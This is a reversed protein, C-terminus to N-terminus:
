KKKVCMGPKAVLWINKTTDYIEVTELPTEAPGKGGVAYLLGNFIACSLHKRGANMHAVYTWRNAAPNYSEVSLLPSMSPDGNSGGVAFLRGRHAVLGHGLREMLMDAMKRWENKVADYRVVEKLCSAGMQGGAVYIYDDTVAAAASTRAGLLKPTM